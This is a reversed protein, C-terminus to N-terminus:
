SALSPQRVRDLGPHCTELSMDAPRRCRWKGPPRKRQGRGRAASRCSPSQGFNVPSYHMIEVCTRRPSSCRGRAPNLGSPSAALSAPAGALKCAPSDCSDSLGSALGAECPKGAPSDCPKSAPSDCSASLWQCPGVLLLNAPAGALPLQPLHTLLSDRLPM